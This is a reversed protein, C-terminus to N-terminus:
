ISEQVRTINSMDDLMTWRSVTDEDPGPGEHIAYLNGDRDLATFSMNADIGSGPVMAPIKPEVAGIFKCTLNVYLLMINGLASSSYSPYAVKVFACPGM